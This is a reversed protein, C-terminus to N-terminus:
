RMTDCALGRRRAAGALGLLGSAFLWAAAPVPVVTGTVVINDFKGYDQEGNDLWFAIWVEGNDAGALNFQEHKFTNRAGGRLMEIWDGNNGGNIPNWNWNGDTGGHAANRLDVTDGPNNFTPLGGASLEANLDGIFYGFIFKDSSGASFTRWDFEININAYGTTDIRILIGADDEVLGVQTSNGGGGFAQAGVDQHIQGNDFAEFRAAFWDNDANGITNSGSGTTTPVGFLRPDSSGSPFGTIGEFDEQLLITSAVAQVSYFACALLTAAWLVPRHKRSEM